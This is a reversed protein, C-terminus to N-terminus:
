GGIKIALWIILAVVLGVLLLSGTVVAFALLLDIMVLLYHHLQRLLLVNYL